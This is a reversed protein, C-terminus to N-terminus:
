KRASLVCARTSAFGVATADRRCPQLKDVVCFSRTYVLARRETPRLTAIRRWDDCAVGHDGEHCAEALWPCRCYRNWQLESFNLKRRLTRLLRRSFEDFARWSAFPVVDSGNTVVTCLGGSYKDYVYEM